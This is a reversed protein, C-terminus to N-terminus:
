FEKRQSVQCGDNGGVDNWEVDHRREMAKVRGLQQAHRLPWSNSWCSPAGHAVALIARKPCQADLMHLIRADQTAAPELKREVEKKMGVPVFQQWADTQGPVLSFDGNIPALGLFALNWLWQSQPVENTEQYHAKRPSPWIKHDRRPISMYKFREPADLQCSTRLRCGFAILSWSNVEAFEGRFSGAIWAM